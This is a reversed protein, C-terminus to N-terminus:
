QSMGVAYYFGDTNHQAVGIQEVGCGHLPSGHIFVECGREHRSAKKEGSKGLGM